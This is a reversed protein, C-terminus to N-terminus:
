ITDALAWTWFVLQLILGVAAAFFWTGLKSIKAENARWYGELWYALRRQMEADDDRHEYLTEYLRIGNLSFVFGEKPLLVYTCAGVSVGLAILALAEITELANTRQITQAGLFSAVLSAAALLTGTRARLEELGREQGDLARLAADYSLQALSSSPPETSKESVHVRERAFRVHCMSARDM